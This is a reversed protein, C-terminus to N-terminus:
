SITARRPASGSTGSMTMSLRIAFFRHCRASMSDAYWAQHLDRHTTSDCAAALQGPRGILIDCAAACEARWQAAPRRAPRREHRPRKTM